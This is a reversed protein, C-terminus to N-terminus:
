VEEVEIKQTTVKVKFTIKIEGDLASLNEIRQIIAGYFTLHSEIKNTNINIYQICVKHSQCLWSRLQDINEDTALISFKILFDEIAFASTSMSSHTKEIILSNAVICVASEDIKLSAALIYKM